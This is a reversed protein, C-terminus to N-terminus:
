LTSIDHGDESVEIKQLLDELYKKAKHELGRLFVVKVMPNAHDVKAIIAQLLERKTM